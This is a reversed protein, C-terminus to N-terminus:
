EEVETDKLIWEARGVKVMKNEQHVENKQRKRELHDQLIKEMM